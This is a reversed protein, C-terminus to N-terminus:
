DGLAEMRVIKFAFGVFVLALTVIMINTYFQVDVESAIHLFTVYGAFAGIVLSRSAMGVAAMFLVSAAVFFDFSEYMAVAADAAQLPLLFPETM